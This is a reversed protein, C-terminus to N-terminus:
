EASVATDPAIADWPIDQREAYERYAEHNRAVVTHAILADDMYGIDPLSDPILDSGDHLYNLAIMAELAAQYPFDDALGSLFADVLDVFFTYQKQAHPFAPVEIRGIEERIASLRSRIGDVERPTLQSVHFEIYEHFENGTLDDLNSPDTDM